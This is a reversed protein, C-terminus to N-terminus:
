LLHYVFFENPWSIICASAIVLLNPSNLDISEMISYLNLWPLPLQSEFHETPAARFIELALKSGLAWHLDMTNVFM